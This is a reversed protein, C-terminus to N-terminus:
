RRLEHRTRTIIAELMESVTLREQATKGNRVCLERYMPTSSKYLKANLREFAARVAQGNVGFPEGAKTCLEGLSCVQNSCVAIYVLEELYNIGYALSKYCGYARLQAMVSEHVLYRDLRPGDAVTQYVTDFLESLNYPKFITCDAGLTLIKEIQEAANPMLTAIIHPHYEMSQGCISRLLPFISTDKLVSDLVLVEPRLGADLQELVEKGTGVVASAEIAINTEAYLRIMRRQADDSDAFLATVREVQKDETM